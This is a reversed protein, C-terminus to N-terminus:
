ASDRVQHLSMRALRQDVEIPKRHAAFRAVGFRGPRTESRQALEVGTIRVGSLEGREKGALSDHGGALLHAERVDGLEGVGRQQAVGVLDRDARDEFRDAAVLNCAHEVHANARAGLKYLQQGQEARMLM